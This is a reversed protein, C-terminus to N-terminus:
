GSVERAAERLRIFAERAAACDVGGIRVAAVYRRAAMEFVDFDVRAAAEGSVVAERAAAEGSVVAERADVETEGSCFAGQESCRVGGIRDEVEFGTAVTECIEAAMELDAVDRPLATLRMAASVGSHPEALIVIFLEHLGGVPLEAPVGLHEIQDRLYNAAKRLDQAPNGKDRHRFLYKFAAALNGPLHRNITRCEVGSPHSTYHKPHNVVDGGSM